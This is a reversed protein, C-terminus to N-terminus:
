SGNGDQQFFNAAEDDFDGQRQSFFYRAVLPREMIEKDGPKYYWRENEIKDLTFLGIGQSGARIIEETIFFLPEKGGFSM